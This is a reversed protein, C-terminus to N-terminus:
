EKMKISFGETLDSDTLGEFEFSESGMRCNGNFEAGEEVILTKTYIDGSVRASQRLMLKESVRITGEVTGAVDAEISTIDADIIASSNIIIKGKCIAEGELKGAIRIDNDSHITGKIRTGESIMNLSPSKHPTGNVKKKDSKKNLM